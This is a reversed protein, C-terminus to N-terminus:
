SCELCATTVPAKGEGGPTHMGENKDRMPNLTGAAQQNADFEAIERERVKLSVHFISALFLDTYYMYTSHNTGFESRFLTSAQQVASQDDTHDERLNQIIDHTRAPLAGLPTRIDREREHSVKHTEERRQLNGAEAVLREEWRAVRDM